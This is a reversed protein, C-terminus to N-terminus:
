KAGSLAAQIAAGMGNITCTTPREHKWVFDGTHLDRLCVRKSTPNLGIGKGKQPDYVVLLEALTDPKYDRARPFKSKLVMAPGVWLDGPTWPFTEVGGTM